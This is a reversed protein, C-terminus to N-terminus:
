KPPLRNYAKKYAKRKVTATLRHCTTYHGAVEDFVKVTGNPEVMIEHNALKGFANCRMTILTTM